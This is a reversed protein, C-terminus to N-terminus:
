VLDIEECYILIDHHQYTRRENKQKFKTKNLTVIFFTIKFILLLDIQVGM